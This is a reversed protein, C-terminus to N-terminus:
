WIRDSGLNREILKVDEPKVEGSNVRLLAEYTLGARGAKKRAKDIKDQIEKYIPEMAKYTSWDSGRVPELLQEILGLFWWSAGPGNAQATKIGDDKSLVKWEEDAELGAFIKTMIIFDTVDYDNPFALKAVGKIKNLIDTGEISSFVDLPCLGHLKIAECLLAAQKIVNNNIDTNLLIFEEKDQEDVPDVDGSYCSVDVWPTGHLILQCNNLEVEFAPCIIDKMILWVVEQQYLRQKVIEESDGSCDAIQRLYNFIANLINFQYIDNSSINKDCIDEFNIIYESIIRYIAESLKKPNGIVIKGEFLGVKNDKDFQVEADVFHVCHFKCISKLISEAIKYDSVQYM